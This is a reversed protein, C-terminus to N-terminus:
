RDHHFLQRRQTELEVIQTFVQRYEPDDLAMRRQRSRLDALRRNFSMEGASRLVGAGYNIQGAVDDNKASVPLPAVALETLLSDIIQPTFERVQAGWQQLAQREREAEPLGPHAASIERAIETYKAYGGAAMIADFVARYSPLDFLERTWNDVGAQAALQPLQLAVELTQRQLRLLPDAEIARRRAESASAAEAAGPVGAREGNPGIGRRGAARVAGAVEAERMGLWGALSRTYESRLARDRIGAVVPAAARLGNVRGEATALDVNKLANRIVFEFLPKRGAVMAKVAEDGRALRLECPDMGGQSVAVFTQAAFHQDEGFARLAAKQGAADGDFTFVVEGGRAGGSRLLVGAAPDASDGILRRAIRVHGEGFATGCTAVATEVGALQAAMVDTYGEVVVIQHTSAIAKKALDLGYLVQNKKYLVTEPTNLYKPGEDDDYLKRAGFGVTVGTIDRIPWILRGRFRDYVGRKGPTCLGSDTLEAETYGLSRLHRALNDWGKPAYGIGFREAVQRDFARQGLFQRAAAAEPSTLQSRYFAEAARNAAVLRQRTGPEIANTPASGEEYRLSVGTQAALQEVAEAFTLHNIKEVFTIVDGGEGCGFCHFFGAQPRVHFSPTKEDHFPCLGKLSGVGASKLTVHQGVIEEINARSRVEDIDERLIKGAM